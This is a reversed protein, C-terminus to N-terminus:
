RQGEGLPSTVFLIGPFLSRDGCMERTLLRGRGAPAPWRRRHRPPTGLPRRGVGDSRAIQLTVHRTGVSRFASSLGAGQHRLPSTRTISRPWRGPRGGSVPSAGETRSSPRPCSRSPGTAESSRTGRAIVRAWGAQMRGDRVAGTSSSTVLGPREPEAQEERWEPGAHRRLLRVAQHARMLGGKIDDLSSRIMRDSEGSRRRGFPSGSGCVSNKSPMLNQTSTASRANKRGRAVAMRIVNLGSGGSRRM